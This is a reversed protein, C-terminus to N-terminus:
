EPTPPRIWKNGPGGAKYDRIHTHQVTVGHHGLGAAGGGDDIGACTPDDLLRKAVGGDDFGNKAGSVADETGHVLDQEIQSRFRGFCNFSLPWGNM